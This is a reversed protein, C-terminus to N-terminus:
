NQFGLYMGAGSVGRQHVTEVGLEDHEVYTGYAEQVKFLYNKTDRRDHTPAKVMWVEYGKHGASYGDTKWVSPLQMWATNGLGDSLCYDSKKLDGVLVSHMQHSWSRAMLAVNKNGTHTGPGLQPDWQIGIDQCHWSFTDQAWLKTAVDYAASLCKQTTTRNVPLELETAARKSTHAKRIANIIQRQSFTVIGEEKLWEDM